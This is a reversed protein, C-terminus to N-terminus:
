NEALCALELSEGTEVSCVCGEVGISPSCPFLSSSKMDTCSKRVLGRVLVTGEVVLLGLLAGHSLFKWKKGEMPLHKIFEFFLGKGM